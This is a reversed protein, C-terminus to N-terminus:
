ALTEGPRWAPAKLLQQTAAERSTLMTMRAAKSAPPAQDILTRPGAKNPEFASEM